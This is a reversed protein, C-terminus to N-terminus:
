TLVLFPVHSIGEFPNRRKRTEQVNNLNSTGVEGVGCSDIGFSTSSIGMEGDGCSGVGDGKEVNTHKFQEFILQDLAYSKEEM